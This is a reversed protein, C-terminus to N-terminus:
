RGATQRGERLPSREVGVRVTMADVVRGYVVRGSDANIVAVQKGLYGDGKAEGTAVIEIGGEEYLLVVRDKSRILPLAELMDLAISTGKPLTRRVRKGVADSMQLAYHQVPAELSVPSIELDDETLVHQGNLIRKATVIPRILDIDATVWHSAPSKNEQQVRMLFTARGPMEGRSVEKFSVGQGASLGRAWNETNRLTLRIDSEPVALQEAAYRKLLVFVQEEPASEGHIVGESELASPSSSRDGCRGGECGAASAVPMGAWQGWWLAWILIVVGRKM